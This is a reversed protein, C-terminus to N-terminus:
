DSMAYLDRLVQIERESYGVGSLFADPLSHVSARLTHRDLASPNKHQIYALGEAKHLNDCFAFQTRSFVAGTLDTDTFDVRSFMTGEATTHRLSTGKINARDFDAYSLDAGSLNAFYLNAFSFDATRLSSNEMKADRLEAAALGAGMLDAGSFDARNLRLGSLDANCLQAEIFCLDGAAHIIVEGWKNKIESQWSSPM